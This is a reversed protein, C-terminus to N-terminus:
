LTKLTNKRKEVILHNAVSDSMSLANYMQYSEMLRNTKGENSEQVIEYVKERRNFKIEVGYISLIEKVDREFTRKLIEYEEGEYSFRKKIFAQLEKFTCPNKRLRELILLHRKIFHKKSM